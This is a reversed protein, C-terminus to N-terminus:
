SFDAATYASWRMTRRHDACGGAVTERAIRTIRRQRETRLSTLTLTAAALTILFLARKM